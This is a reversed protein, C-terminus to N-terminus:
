IEKKIIKKLTNFNIQKKLQKTAYERWNAAFYSTVVETPKGNEIVRVRKPKNIQQVGEVQMNHRAISRLLKRM